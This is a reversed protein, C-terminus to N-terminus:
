NSIRFWNEDSVTSSGVLASFISAMNQRISGALQRAFEGRYFEFQHAMSKQQSWKVSKQKL